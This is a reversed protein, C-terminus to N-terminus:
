YLVIPAAKAEVEMEVEVEVELNGGGGVVCRVRAKAITLSQPKCLVRLLLIIGELSIDIAIRDNVFLLCWKVDYAIPMVM